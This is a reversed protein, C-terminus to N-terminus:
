FPAAAVKYSNTRGIEVIGVWVRITNWINAVTLPRVVLEPSTVMSSLGRHSLLFDM